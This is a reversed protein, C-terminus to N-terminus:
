QTHHQTWRQGCITCILRRRKGTKTKRTELVHIHIPFFPILYRDGPLRHVQNCPRPTKHKPKRPM